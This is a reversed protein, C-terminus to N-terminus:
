EIEEGALVQKLNRLLMKWDDAHVSNHDPFKRLKCLCVFATFLLCLSLADGARSIFGRKAESEMPIEPNRRDFPPVTHAWSPVCVTREM